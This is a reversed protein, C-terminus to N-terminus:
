LDHGFPKRSLENTPKGAKLLVYKLFFETVSALCLSIPAIFAGSAEANLKEAAGCYDLANRRYREHIEM